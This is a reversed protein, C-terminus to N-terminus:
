GGSGRRRKTFRSIAVSKEAAPDDPPLATTESGFALWGPDVGYVRAMARITTLNPEAGDHWRGVTSPSIAKDKGLEQSVWGAVEVNEVKRELRASLTLHARFVRKGFGEAEVMEVGLPLSKRCPSALQTLLL